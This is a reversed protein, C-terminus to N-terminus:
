RPILVGPRCAIELEGFFELGLIYQLPKGKAREVCLQKLVEPWRRAVGRCRVAHERLWRLESEASDLDRCARLLRPLLPNIAHARQLLAPPLRPM